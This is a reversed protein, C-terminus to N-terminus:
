NLTLASIGESKIDDGVYEILVIISEPMNDRFSFIATEGEANALEMRAIEKMSSEEDEPAQRKLFEKRYDRLQGRIVGAQM